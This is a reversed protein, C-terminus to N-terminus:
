QVTLIIQKQAINGDKDTITFSWKETGNQNRTVFTVDKDFHQQEGAVLNFTQSTVTTTAGDYAYSVNYTLMDDELKEATIGVKITQNKAVTADDSTYGAGTKLSISPPIHKDKECSSFALCIIAILITTTRIKQIAKM